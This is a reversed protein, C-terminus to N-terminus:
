RVKITDKDKDCRVSINELMNILSEDGKLDRRVQHRMPIDLATTLFLIRTDFLMVDYPVANNYKRMRTILCPLCPTERLILQM